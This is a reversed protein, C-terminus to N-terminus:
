TRTSTWRVSAASIWWKPRWSLLRKPPDVDDVEEPPGAPGHWASQLAEYVAEQLPKIPPTIELIMEATYEGPHNRQLGAAVGFALDKMASSGTAAMLVMHGQDGFEENLEAIANMDFQLILDKGDIQIPVQGRYKNM